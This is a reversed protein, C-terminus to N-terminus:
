LISEDLKASYSNSNCFKDWESNQIFGLKIFKNVLVAWIMEGIYFLKGEGIKLNLDSMCDLVETPLNEFNTVEVFEGDTKQALRIQFQGEEFLKMFAEGNIGKVKDVKSKIL